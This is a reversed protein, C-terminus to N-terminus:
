RAIVSRVPSFSHALCSPVQVAILCTTARVTTRPRPISSTPSRTRHFRSAPVCQIYSIEPSVWDRWQKHSMNATLKDCLLASWAASPPAPWLRLTEDSSGSVIREGDPSFAVSFVVKTHGILPQGTPQGTDADWLRLATDGSGSVIRRGDPSFAVSFVAAHHGTLPGGIPQGTGADWVRLTKDWSGSVIGSHRGFQGARRKAKARVNNPTPVADVV